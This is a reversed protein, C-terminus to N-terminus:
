DIEHVVKRYVGSVNEQIMEDIATEVADDQDPESLEDSSHVLRALLATTNYAHAVDFAFWAPFDFVPDHPNDITTIAVRRAM